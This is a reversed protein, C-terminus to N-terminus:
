RKILMAAKIALFVFLYVAAYPQLGLILLLVGAANLLLSGRRKIQNWTLHVCNQLALMLIGYIPLGVAFVFYGFRIYPAANKLSLLSVARVVTGAKDAFFPLFLLLVASVDLLGFVLDFVHAQSRRQDEEAIMLIEDGSLLADISVSFFAAIAQLSDINPCGRGSEWKSIATRSVYLQEALDEQTLGKQKRLEQLKESFEM